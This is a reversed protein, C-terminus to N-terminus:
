NNNSPRLMRVRVVGEINNLAEIDNETVDDDLDIMTYAWNKKPKNTLRNINLERNALVATIQGIMNPINQHLVTVRAPTLIPGFNITPFNVSNRINGYKLYDMMQNIVMNAANEESEPTSAGLHPINITNKMKLTKETPFDVVYKAITNNDIAEELADLDVLGDRACNIIIQGKKSEALLPANIFKNTTENLPIHLTVYDCNQMIYNINYQTKTQPNLGLAHEVSLYPDLGFVEMGLGVCMNAVRVGIEGLGIIGIKKNALEPGVFQKKGKEVTDAIDGQGNLSNTWELADYINRSAIILASLVLEKVGNANAGPANTVVIGKQTLRDIPINNVGSGARGVFKVTSAFNLNHMDASRVIFADVEDSDYNLTFEDNLKRLANANINNLTKIKYIKDIHSM